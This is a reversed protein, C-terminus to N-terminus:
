AKVTNRIFVIGGKAGPVAGKVAFVADNLELTGVEAGAMNLVKVNAM